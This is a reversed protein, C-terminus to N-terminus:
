GHLWQEAHIMSVAPVAKLRLRSRIILRFTRACEGPGCISSTRIMCLLPLSQGVGGLDEYLNSADRRMFCLEGNMRVPFRVAQLSVEVTAGTKLPKAQCTLFCVPGIPLWGDHVDM